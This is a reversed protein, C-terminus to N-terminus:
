LADETGCRELMPTGNETDRDGETLSFTRSAGIEIFRVCSDAHSTSPYCGAGRDMYARSAVNIGGNRADGPDIM